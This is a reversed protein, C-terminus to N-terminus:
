PANLISTELTGYTYLDLADSEIRTPIPYVTTVKSKPDPIPQALVATYVAHPTNYLTYSFFSYATQKRYRALERIAELRNSQFGLEAYRAVQFPPVTSLYSLTILNSLIFLAQSAQRGKPHRRAGKRSSARAM